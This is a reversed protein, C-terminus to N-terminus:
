NVESTETTSASEGSSESELDSTDTTTSSDTTNEQTETTTEETQGSIEEAQVLSIGGCLMVGSAVLVTLGKSLRKGLCRMASVSVKLLIQCFSKGRNRRQSM